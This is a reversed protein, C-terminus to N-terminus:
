LKPFWLKTPKARIALINADVDSMPWWDSIKVQVSFHRHVINRIMILKEVYLEVRNSHRLKIM